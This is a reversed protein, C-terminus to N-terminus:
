LSINWSFIKKQKTKRETTNTKKKKIPLTMLWCCLVLWTCLMKCSDNLVRFLIYTRLTFADTHLAFIINLFYLNLVAGGGGGRLCLVRANKKHLLICHNPKFSNQHKMVNTNSPKDWCLNAIFGDAMCVTWHSTNLSDHIEFPAKDRRCIRRELM